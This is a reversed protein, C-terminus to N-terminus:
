FKRKKKQEFGINSTWQGFSPEIEFGPTGALDFVALSTPVRFINKGTYSRRKFLDKSIKQLATKM